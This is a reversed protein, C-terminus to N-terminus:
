TYVLNDAEVFQLSSGSTDSKILLVENLYYLFSKPSISAISSDVDGSGGTSSSSLISSSILFLFWMKLCSNFLSQGTQKLRIVSGHWNGFYSTLQSWMIQLVHM